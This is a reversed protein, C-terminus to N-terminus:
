SEFQIGARDALAPRILELVVKMHAPHEAYTRWGAEHEFTALVGIEANGEAFGADLGVRYEKLEPIVAPLARLATVIEDARGAPADPKLTLLVVHTLM